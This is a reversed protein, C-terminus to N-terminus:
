VAALHEGRGRGRPRHAGPRVSRLCVMYGREGHFSVAHFFFHQDVDELGLFATDGDDLVPDEFLEVDLPRAVLTVGAVDVLALDNIELRGDLRREDVERHAAVPEEVDGVDLRLIIKAV